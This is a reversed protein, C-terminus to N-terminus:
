PYRERRERWTELSSKACLFSFVPLILQKLGRVFASIISLWGGIIIFRNFGNGWTKIPFRGPYFGLDQEFSTGSM